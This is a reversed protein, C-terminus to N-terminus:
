QVVVGTIANTLWADGTNQSDAVVAQASVRLDLLNKNQPVKFPIGAQGGPGPLSLRPLVVMTKTDILLNGLGPIPVAPVRQGATLAPLAVGNSTAFGAARSVNLQWTSGLKLAGSSSLQQLHNSYLIPGGSNGCVLDADGDQDLDGLRASTTANNVKPLRATADSFVAKGDNLWLENQGFSTGLVADIDGDGDVDGLAVAFSANNNPGPLNKPMDKFKGSGQNLYLRNQGLANAFLVDPRKDGDLDAVALDFTADGFSPFVSIAARSFKGKGDNLLLDNGNRDNGIVLDLDGDADVDAAVLIHTNDSDTPMQSTADGFSGKGNNLLLTNQANQNGVVLDLDGDGDADFLLVAQTSDSRQPLRGSTADSFSGNQNLYLRNQQAFNGFVVDADGDGDVDGVALAFSTDKDTPLKNSADGFLGHGDNEFLRNQGSSNSVLLDADGDGDSDVLVMQSPNTSTSPLGQLPDAGFQQAALTSAFVCVALYSQHPSM